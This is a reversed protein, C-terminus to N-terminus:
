KKAIKKLWSLRQKFIPKLDPPIQDKIIDEEIVQIFRDGTLFPYKEVAIQMAQLGDAQQFTEIASQVLDVQKPVNSRQLEILEILRQAQRAYQTQGLQTFIQQAERVYTLAQELQGQAALLTALNCSGMAYGSVDGLDHSIALAQEYCDQAQEYKGINVYVIGINGLAHGVGARDGLERAIALSQDHYGLSQEYQGMNKYMVGINGLARGEGARDGIGRVVALQQEFHDLSQEHQGISEYVVGINGLLTGEEMQDGLERSIVLGQEFYYLAPEYQGIHQYVNGINNLAVGEGARNGLERAVVLRQEHYNLAQEYQGIKEYILGINGLAHGEEIRNGLERAIVLDQEIYDLAKDYQGINGYVAGISNLAMGEGVRNGLECMIALYKEFYDLAEKYQGINLYVNGINGLAGGEGERNKLERAIVLDQKHYDLAQEYRGINKYVIGMNGLAVGEGARHWLDRALRLSLEYYHLAVDYRGIDFYSLGITNYAIMQRRRQEVNEAKMSDAITPLAENENVQWVIRLQYELADWSAPRSRVSRATSEEILRVLEVPVSVPLSLRVGAFHSERMEEFSSGEVVRRGSLLEAMILGWAYIDTRYDLKEWLWQEASMYAPTGVIRGISQSRQELLGVQSNRDLTVAETQGELGGILGFDTVRLHNVNFADLKDGGVLINEPKLDRHVLGPHKKVAHQMGWVIQLGFMVAQKWDMGGPEIWSRLSADRKGMEPSILEAAIFVEGRGEIREINYAEVINPHSGLELWVTAEKLFQDRAKREKLLKRHFTKLAVPLGDQRHDVAFYVVGMGGAGAMKVIEYRDAIITGSKYIEM